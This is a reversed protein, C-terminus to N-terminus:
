FIQKLEVSVISSDSEEINIVFSTDRYGYLKLSISYNGGHLNVLSDPTVKGTSLGDVFIAAGRPNSKINVKANGYNVELPYERCANLIVLIIIAAFFLVNRQNM